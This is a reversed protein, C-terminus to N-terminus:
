RLSDLYALLAERERSNGAFPPMYPRMNGMEFIIQELQEQTQGKTRELIDNMPGGVAHCSLCLLNYVERGATQQNSAGLDRVASWRARRLVGTGAALEPDGPRVSNAYLYGPIVFPKRGSERLFEFSGLTLLGVLLMLGALIRGVRAPQHIAMTIGGLLLLASFVLFAQFYDRAAPMRQFILEELGPSLAARYWWASAVFLVFPLLLWRACYSVM